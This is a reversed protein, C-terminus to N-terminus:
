VSEPEAAESRGAKWLQFPEVSGVAILHGWERVCREWTVTPSLARASERAAFRAQDDSFVSAIGLAVEEPSSNPAFRLGAKPPLTDLLGEVGFGTVPVGVRLFELTSIGLPERKSFLCGLDCDALFRLLRGEDREKDIFGVYELGEVQRLEDPCNGVARVVVKWNMRALVNRVELLFPLGKRQWDKGVFGLVLPRERGPKREDCTFQWDDPLTLNAGPLITFVKERPVGCEHIASEAAWRAMTVIRTARQFNDREQRLAETRKAPPLRVTAGEGGSLSAVTADIYYSVSGGAAALTAARPFHQNFSIVQTAHLAMPVSREAASLFAESYQYGGTGAGKLCQFLNWRRRAGVFRSLDLRWPEMAWGAKNAAELFYSPTGSWCARRTVDGVAALSWGSVLHTHATSM